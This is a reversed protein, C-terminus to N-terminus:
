GSTIMFQWFNVNAGCEQSAATLMSPVICAQFLGHFSEPPAIAILLRARTPTRRHRACSTTARQGRRLLMGDPKASESTLEAQTGGIHFVRSSAQLLDQLLQRKRECAERNV